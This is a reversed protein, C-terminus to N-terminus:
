RKPNVEAIANTVNVRIGPGMSSSFAIAKVYTGKAGAPKANLVAKLLVKANDHLNTSKFSVKGIANHIIAQKDIRFEVKGAKAETVAKAPDATVTGSKPNPMLGKPGLVKAVKGLSAMKDPTAILVDFNLEGKEIKALLDAGGVIDAGAKTADAHKDSPALVAVRLSKGTGAPLTVTSRVMQDAQRPDVGLNIHMEISADFKVKSTKQALEIAEALEYQQSSDVLKKAERWNKSHYHLPNPVHLVRKPAEDVIGKAEVARAKRLLEAEAEDMAKKSRKGAKATKVEESDDENEALEADMEDIEAQVEEAVEEAVIEDIEVAIETELEVIDAEVVEALKATKKPTKKAEAM